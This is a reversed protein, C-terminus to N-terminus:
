LPAELAKRNDGTPNVLRAGSLSARLLALSRNVLCATSAGPHRVYQLCQWRAASADDISDLLAVAESIEALRAAGLRAVSPYLGCLVGAHAAAQSATNSAARKAPAPPAGTAARIESLKRPIPPTKVTTKSRTM